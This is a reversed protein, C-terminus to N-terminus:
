RRQRKYWDRKRATVFEDVLTGAQKYASYAQDDNYTANRDRPYLEFTDDPNVYAVWDLGVWTFGITGMPFVPKPGVARYKRPM